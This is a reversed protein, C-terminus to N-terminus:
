TEWRVSIPASVGPLPMAEAEAEVADRVAPTPRRWATVTVKEKARRWTGVLEGNLLLGGPWVTAPPWLERRRDADRVLLERDAALLYADGSPLFRAGGPREPPELFVLEDRRLIWSDGVPTRVQLLSRRLSEFAALGSKPSLGAWRAFDVPTAPGLVHLYRRVLELRAKTPDIAPPEVIWVTPERAGDWRILVSGTPAALRLRWHHEGIAAAAAEVGM